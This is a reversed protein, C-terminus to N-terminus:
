SGTYIPQIGRVPFQGNTFYIGFKFQLFYLGVGPSFIKAHM